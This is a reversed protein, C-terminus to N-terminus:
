LNNILILEQIKKRAKFLNSMSTGETVGLMVAIEQHSYGEIAYLNFTTRCAVPLQQILKSIEEVNFKGFLDLDVSYHDAESLDTTDINQHSKRLHDICTNVLIRKMWSVFKLNQDYKQINLFVKLFGDNLLERAIEIDNVYRFCISLSFKYFSNYLKRQAIRDEKKCLSITDILDQDTM